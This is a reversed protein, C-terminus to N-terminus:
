RPGRKALSRYYEEVLDRFGPPVEDSGGLLLRERGTGETARRLAFEFTKFGEIVSTQLRQLEEPDDYIREGELARLQAILRDLDRGDRRQRTLERKLAEAAARKDRFERGFQRIDDASFGAAGAGPM